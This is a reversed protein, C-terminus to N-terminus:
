ERTKETASDSLRTFRFSLLVLSVRAMGVVSTSPTKLLSIGRYFLQNSPSRMRTERGHEEFMRKQRNTRQPQLSVIESSLVLVAHMQM